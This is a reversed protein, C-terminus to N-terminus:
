YDKCGEVVFRHTLMYERLEQYDPFSFGESQIACCGCANARVVAEGLPIKEVIGSILGAAFADGAGTLDVVKEARFTPTTGSEVNSKYFAGAKGLTVVIKNGGYSRFLEAIKEPESEGFLVAADKASPVFVESHVAIEEIVNFGDKGCDSGPDFVVPIELKRCEACLKKAFNFCNENEIVFRGTIFIVDFDEPSFAFCREEDASVFSDDIGNKILMERITESFNEDIKSSVSTSIGLRSLAAATYIGDSGVKKGDSYAKCLILAKYM